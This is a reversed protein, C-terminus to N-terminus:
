LGLHNTYFIAIFGTMGIMLEFNLHNLHNCQEYDPYRRTSTTELNFHDWDGWNVRWPKSIYPEFNLKGSCLFSEHLQNTAVMTTVFHIQMYGIPLRKTCHQHLAKRQISWRRGVRLMGLMTNHSQAITSHGIHAVSHSTFLPLNGPWPHYYVM